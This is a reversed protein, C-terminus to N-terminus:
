LNSILWCTTRGIGYLTTDLTFWHSTLVKLEVQFYAKMEVRRLTLYSCWVGPVDCGIVASLKLSTISQIIWGASQLTNQEFAPTLWADMRQVSPISNSGQQWFADYPNLNLTM